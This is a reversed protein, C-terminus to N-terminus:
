SATWALKIERDWLPEESGRLHAGYACSGWSVSFPGKDSKCFPESGQLAMCPMPQAGPSSPCLCNIFVDLPGWVIAGQAGTPAIATSM